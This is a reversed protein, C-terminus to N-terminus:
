SLIPSRGNLNSNGIGGYWWGGEYELAWNTADWLFNNRDKTSFFITNEIGLGYGSTSSWNYNAVSLKYKNKENDVTFANFFGFATKGDWDELDVRLVINGSAILRHINDNGLWLNGTLSGFGQKYSTWDLGFNTSNDIRRQFVTWGGGDTVM